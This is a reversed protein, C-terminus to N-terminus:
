KSKESQSCVLVQFKLCEEFTDFSLEHSIKKNWLSLISKSKKQKPMRCEHCYVTDESFLAEYLFGMGGNGVEHGAWVGPSFYFIVGLCLISIVRKM